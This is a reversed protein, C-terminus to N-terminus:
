FRHKYDDYRISLNIQVPEESDWTMEGFDSSIIFCNFYDWREVVDNVAGLVELTCSRRYFVSYGMRGTWSETQSALWESIYQASSPAVYDMLTINLPDFRARGAEYRFKNIHPIEIEDFNVSPRPASKVLLKTTPDNDISFLFRNTRKTQM